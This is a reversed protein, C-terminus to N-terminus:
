ISAPAVTAMLANRREMAEPHNHLDVWAKNQKLLRVRDVDFQMASYVGLDKMHDQEERASYIRLSVPDCLRPQSTKMCVAYTVRRGEYKDHPATTPWSWDSPSSFLGTVWRIFSWHHGM